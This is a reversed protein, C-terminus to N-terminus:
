MLNRSLIIYSNLSCISVTSMRAFGSDIQSRLQSIRFTRVATSRVTEEVLIKPNKVLSTGM